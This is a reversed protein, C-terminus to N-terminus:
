DFNRKKVAKMFQVKSGFKLAESIRFEGFKLDFSITSM